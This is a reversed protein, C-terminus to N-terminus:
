TIVRITIRNRTDDVILEVFDFAPTGFVFLRGPGRLEPDWWPFEPEAPVYEVGRHPGDRPASGGAPTTLLHHRDDFRLPRCRRLGPSLAHFRNIDAREATFQVLWKRTGAHTAADFHLDTTSAPLGALQADGLLQQLSEPTGSRSRELPELLPLASM